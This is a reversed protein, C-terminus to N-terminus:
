VESKTEEGKRKIPIKGGFICTLHIYYYVLDQKAKGAKVPARKRATEPTKSDTHTLQVCYSREYAGIKEKLQTYSSFKEGVTFLVSPLSTSPTAMNVMVIIYYSTRAHATVSM